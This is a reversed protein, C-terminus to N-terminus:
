KIIYRFSVSGDIFDGSWHNFHIYPMLDLSATFPIEKFRYELGFIGVLGFATVSRNYTYYYADCKPNTPDQCDSEGKGGGYYYYGRYFGIRAGGGYVWTLDSVKLANGKHLEFLGAISFGHWRSGVIGELAAKSNLFHKITLGSTLGGRLGISTTYDGSNESSSKSKNGGQAYAGSNITFAAALFLIAITKTITKM